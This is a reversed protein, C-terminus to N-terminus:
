ENPTPTTILPVKNIIRSKPNYPLRPAAQNTAALALATAEPNNAIQAALDGINVQIQNQGSSILHSQEKYETPRKNTLYFKQANLNGKEASRFLSLCIRDCAVALAEECQQLFTADRSAELSIQSYTMGVERAAHSPGYGDTLLTTYRDKLGQPVM